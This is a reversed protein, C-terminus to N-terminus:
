ADRRSSDRRYSHIVDVLRTLQDPDTGPMVGHGLNFIHGPAGRGEDLIRRAEAAVVDPPAFLLTPDLNGQV